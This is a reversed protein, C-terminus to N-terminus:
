FRRLDTGKAGAINWVGAFDRGLKKKLIEQRTIQSMKTNM